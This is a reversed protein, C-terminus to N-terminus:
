KQSEMNFPLGLDEGSVVLHTEGSSSKCSRITVQDVVMACQVYRIEDSQQRFLSKFLTTCIHIHMNM